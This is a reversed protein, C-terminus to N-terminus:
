IILFNGLFKLVCKMNKNYTFTGFKRQKWENKLEYESLNNENVKRNM